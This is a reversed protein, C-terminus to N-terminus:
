RPQCERASRELADYDIRETERNVGYPVFNFFRGSFNAKLGHTLHGGHALDMGMVVDGVELVAFYAIM